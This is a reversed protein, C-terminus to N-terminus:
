CTAPELGALLEMKGMYQLQIASIVVIHPTKRNHYIQNEDIKRSIEARDARQPRDIDKGVGEM